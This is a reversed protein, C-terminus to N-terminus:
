YWSTDVLILNGAEEFHCLTVKELSEELFIAHVVAWLLGESASSGPETCSEKQGKDIRSEKDKFKYQLGFDAFTGASRFAAASM